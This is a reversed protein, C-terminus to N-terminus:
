LKTQYLKDDIKKIAIRPRKQWRKLLLHAQRQAESDRRSLPNLGVLTKLLRVVRSYDENSLAIM